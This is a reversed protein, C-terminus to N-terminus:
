EEDQLAKKKLFWYSVNTYLLLLSVVALNGGIDVTKFENGFVWASILSIVPLFLIAIFAFRIGHFTAKLRLSLYMEDEDKETAFLIWFLGLSIPIHFLYGIWEDLYLKTEISNWNIVLLSMLVIALPFGIFILQFGRKRYASPLLFLEIQSLNKM